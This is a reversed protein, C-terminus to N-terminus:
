KVSGSATSPVDPGGSGGDGVCTAGVPPAVVRAMWGHAAAVDGRACARWLLRYEMRLFRRAAPRSATNRDVASCVADVQQATLGLATAAREVEMYAEYPAEDLAAGEEPSGIPPLVVEALGLAILAEPTACSGGGGGGGSVGGTPGSDAGAQPLPRAHQPAHWGGAAAAPAAEQGEGEEDWGESTEVAVAAEQWGQGEAAPLQLPRASTSASLQLAAPGVRRLETIAAGQPLTLQERCRLQPQWGHPSQAAPAARVLRCTQEAGAPAGDLVVSLSVETPFPGDRGWWAEAAVLPVNLQRHRLFSPTV